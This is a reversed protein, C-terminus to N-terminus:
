LECGPPIVCVNELKVQFQAAWVDLRLRAPFTGVTDPVNVTALVPVPWNLTAAAVEGANVTFLKECVPPTKSNFVPAPLATNFTEPDNVCAAPEKQETAEAPVGTMLKLPVVPVWFTLKKLAAGVAPIVYLILLPMPILREPVPVSTEEKAILLPPPILTLM